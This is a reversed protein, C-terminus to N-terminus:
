VRNLIFIYVSTAPGWNGACIGGSGSGPGTDLGAEVRAEESVHLAAILECNQLCLYGVCKCM